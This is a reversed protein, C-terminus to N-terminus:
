RAAKWEQRPDSSKKSDLELQVGPKATVFPGLCLVDMDTRLFCNVAQQPTDVIPENENFSTNLVVPLGGQKEFTRILDYYLPNQSRTVTHLRGTDDQHCVAALSRRKDPKIKVVHMMFPSELQQAFYNGTEEAIITPAFPRFSERRKIKQNILDKMGPWGPHALISRNGLARPGWESRGQYWGTVHGSNLHRATRDLLDTREFRQFHLGAATLAQEMEIESHDPGWYAHEIKGARPQGLLANWVYLAAGISTGDDSAACQIYTRAFPTDRLIRANCVGNLACGGATVLSEVPHEGHLWSLSALVVNEFQSQCSAALDKDRQTLEAGRQRPPGLRKVLEKSYLPPLLIEGKEDVCEELSRSLPVFYKSNLRYHGHEIPTLLEGMLDMMSPKGHAALGMVKYEEGFRDFGIFQCLATYFYGLSDPMTVRDLIQIRSGQCRAFMASTFDGAADYSFAAAQDFDSAYYSSALHALHHEVRKAKFRCDSESVGCGEAVLHQLTRMKSRRQFHTAVGRASKLPSRLVRSVKAPINANSDNGVALYDIDKVTAGAMRLVERLARAPFGSVHKLRPGLREEAVAAVLKGDVLACASSDPHFANVGVILSM